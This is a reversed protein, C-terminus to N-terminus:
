HRKERLKVQVHTEDTGLIAKTMNEYYQMLEESVGKSIRVNMKGAFFSKGHSSVPQTKLRQFSQSGRKEEIEERYCDLTSESPSLMSGKQTGEVALWHALFGSFVSIHVFHMNGSFYLFASVKTTTVTCKGRVSPQGISPPALKEEMVELVNM